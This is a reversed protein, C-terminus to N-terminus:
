TGGGAAIANEMAQQGVGFLFGLERVGLRGLDRSATESLAADVLKKKREQLEIIRDEVTGAILIRHVEVPKQQGLRHARDIAQLEVFPNWFPDLIIVRSAAVLNLGANGAKLSVLMITCHPDDTFRLVGAHRADAKMSGDYRQYGWKKEYKIPVELLDLLSTWQSFIITKEGSEAIRQLLDVCEQIKASYIWNKKLYRMYRRKGETTRMAEKKLLALTVPKKDENAKGKGKRDRKRTVRPKKQRPQRPVSALADLDDLDDGDEDEDGSEYDDPVVFGRLDGEPNPLEDEDGDSETDSELEEDDESHTEDGDAGQGNKGADEEDPMHIQKFAEYNIIKQPDIRGRCSPCRAGAAGELGDVLGQQASQETIKVLCERCQDHGCPIIISPNPTADYCVPCEFAGGAEIIRGVVDPDLGKALALMKEVSTEGDGSAGDGFDILHPHCCAQRLRLLLVLIDVSVFRLMYQVGARLCHGYSVLITRVSRGRKSTNTSNYNLKQKWRLIFDRNM